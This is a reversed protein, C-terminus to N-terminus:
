GTFWSADPTNPANYPAANMLTAHRFMNLFKGSLVGSVNWIRIDQNFSSAGRLMSEINTVNSM